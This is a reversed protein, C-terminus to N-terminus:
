DLPSSNIKTKRLESLDLNKLNFSKMNQGLVGSLVSLIQLCFVLFLIMANWNKM